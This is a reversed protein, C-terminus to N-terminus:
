SRPIAPDTPDDPGIPDSRGAESERVRRMARGFNELARLYAAGDGLKRAARLTEMAADLHERPNREAGTVGLARLMAELDKGDGFLDDLPNTM